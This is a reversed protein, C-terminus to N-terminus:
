RIMKVESPSKNKVGKLELDEQEIVNTLPRSITKFRLKTIPKDTLSHTQM